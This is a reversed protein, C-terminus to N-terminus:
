IESVILRTLTGLSDDYYTYTLGLWYTKNNVYLSRYGIYNYLFIYIITFSIGSIIGAVSLSTSAQALQKAALRQERDPSSSKCQAVAADRVCARM